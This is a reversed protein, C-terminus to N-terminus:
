SSSRINTAIAFGIAVFAVVLILGVIDTPLQTSIYYFSLTAIFVLAFVLLGKFFIEFFSKMTDKLM